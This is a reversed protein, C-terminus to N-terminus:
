PQCSRELDGVRTWISTWKLVFDAIGLRIRPMLWRSMGFLLPLSEGCEVFDTLCNGSALGKGVKRM